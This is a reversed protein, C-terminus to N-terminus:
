NGWFEQLQACSHLSVEASMPSGWGEIAWCLHNGDPLEWCYCFQLWHLDEPKLHPSVKVVHPPCLARGYKFVSHFFCGCQWSHEQNSVAWAIQMACLCKSHVKSYFSPLFLDGNGTAVAACYWDPGWYLASCMLMVQGEWERISCQISLKVLLTYSHITFTFTKLPFDWFNWLRSNERRLLPLSFHEIGHVILELPGIKPLFCNLHKWM